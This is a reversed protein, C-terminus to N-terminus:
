VPGADRIVYTISNRLQGTDLLPKTGTRGRARRARLTALALPVFPGTQIRNRVASVAAIGAAHLAREALQPRGLLEADAAQKMYSVIRAQGDHIGPVVFPRAPINAEPAGNEHIYALTANTIYAVDGSDDRDTEAEPVGVLVSRQTLHNVAKVPNKAGKKTLEFVGSKSRPIAM